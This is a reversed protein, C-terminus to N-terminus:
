SRYAQGVNCDRDFLLRTNREVTDRSAQLSRASRAVTGSTPGPPWLPCKAASASPSESESPTKGYATGSERSPRLSPLAWVWSPLGSRTFRPICIPTVGSLRLNLISAFVNAGIGWLAHQGHRAYLTLRNAGARKGYLGMWRRLVTENLGLERAVQAVPVDGRETLRVAELKFENTFKRRKGM